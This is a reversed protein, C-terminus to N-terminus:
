RHELKDKWVIIQDKATQANNADPVLELYDQMHEIACEYDGTEGCLLALNFQGEPWVPFVTLAAEYEDTARQFDKEQVANEALVKHERANEPLAPKVGSAQWQRLTSLFNERRARRQATVEPSYEWIMRNVASAFNSANRQASWFIYYPGGFDVIWGSGLEHRPAPVYLMNEFEGKVTNPESPEVGWVNTFIFFQKNVQIDRAHGGDANELAAAITKQAQAISSKPDFPEGPNTHGLTVTLELRKGKRIVAMGVPQGAPRSLIQKRLDRSDLLTGNDFSLIVDGPRLGAKWAPGGPQVEFVYVGSTSEISITRGTPLNVVGTERSSPSSSIPLVLVGMYTTNPQM